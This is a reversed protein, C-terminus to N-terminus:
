KEEKTRNFLIGSGAGSNERRFPSRSCFTQSRFNVETRREMIRFFFFLASSVNQERIAFYKKSKKNKSHSFKESKNIIV